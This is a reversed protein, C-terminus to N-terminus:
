GETPRSISQVRRIEELVLITKVNLQGNKALLYIQQRLESAPSAALLTNVQREFEKGYKSGAKM